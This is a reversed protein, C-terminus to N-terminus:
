FDELFRALRNVTTASVTVDRTAPTTNVVPQHLGNVPASPQLNALASTVREAIQQLEAHLIEQTSQLVDMQQEIRTLSHPHPSPPTIAHAVNQELLTHLTQQGTQLTALTQELQELRTEVLTVGVPMPQLSAAAPQFFAQLAAKCLENFTPFEGVDVRAEATALLTQEAEDETFILRKITQKEKTM